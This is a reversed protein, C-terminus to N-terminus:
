AKASIRSSAPRESAEAAERESRSRSWSCRLITSSYRSEVEEQSRRDHIGFDSLSRVALLRALASFLPPDPTILRKGERKRRFGLHTAAPEAAPARPQRATATSAAGAARAPRGSHAAAPPAM